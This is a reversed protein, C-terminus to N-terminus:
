KRGKLSKDKNIHILANRDTQAHAMHTCLRSLWFLVNSGISSSNFIALLRWTRGPFHVRDERLAALAGLWQAM